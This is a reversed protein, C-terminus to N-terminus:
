QLVKKLKDLIQNTEKLIDKIEQASEQQSGSHVIENRIRLFKKLTEHESNDIMGNQQLYNIASSSTRLRSDVAFDSVLGELDRWKAIVEYELSPTLGIEQDKMKQIVKKHYTEPPLLFSFLCSFAGLLSLVLCLLSVMSEEDFYDYVIQHYVRYFLFFIIGMLMYAVGIIFMKKRKQTYRRYDTLLPKKIENDLRILDSVSLDEVSSSRELLSKFLLEKYEASLEDLYQEIKDNSYRNVNNM